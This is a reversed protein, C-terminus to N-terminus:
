SDDGPLCPADKYAAHKQRIEQKVESWKAHEHRATVSFHTWRGPELRHHATFTHGNEEVDCEITLLGAVVTLATVGRVAIPQETQEHTTFVEVTNIMKLVM